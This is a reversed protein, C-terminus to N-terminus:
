GEIKLKTRRSFRVGASSGSRVRMAGFMYANLDLTGALEPTATLTLEAQGNVLDV